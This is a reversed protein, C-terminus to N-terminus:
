EGRCNRGLCIPNPRIVESLSQSLKLEGVREILIFHNFHLCIASISQCEGLDGYRPTIVQFVFHGMQGITPPFPAKNYM